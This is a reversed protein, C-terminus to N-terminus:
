RNKDLQCLLALVICELALGFMVVCYFLSGMGLVVLGLAMLSYAEGIYNNNQINKM